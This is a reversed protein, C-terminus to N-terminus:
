VNIRSNKMLKMVLEFIFVILTSAIGISYLIFCGSLHTLTLSQRSPHKQNMFIRKDFSNSNWYDILGAAQLLLIKENIADMLFFNKRAFLVVPYSKYREKCIQFMKEGKRFNEGNLYLIANLSRLFAGKFKPNFINQLLLERKKISLPIL